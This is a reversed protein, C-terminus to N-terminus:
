RDRCAGPPMLTRDGQDLHRVKGRASAAIDNVAVKADCSGSPLFDFINKRIVSLARSSVLGFKWFSGM